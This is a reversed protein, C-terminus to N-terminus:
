EENIFPWWSDAQLYLLQSKTETACSLFASVIKEYIEEVPLHGKLDSGLLLKLLERIVFSRGPTFRLNPQRIQLPEHKVQASVIVNVTVPLHQCLANDEVCWSVVSVEESVVVYDLTKRADTYTVTNNNPVVSFGDRELDAVYGLM